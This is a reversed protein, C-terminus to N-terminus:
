DKSVMVDCFYYQFFISRVKAPSHYAVKRVNNVQLGLGAGLLQSFMDDYFIPFEQVFKEEEIFSCIKIYEDPIHCANHNKIM